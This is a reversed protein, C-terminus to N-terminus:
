TRSTARSERALPKRIYGKEILKSYIRDAAHEPAETDGRVVVDPQTPPEYAVQVGPVSSTEGRQASRYIGKPDRAVCTEVPCDVYVELFRDIALRAADRYARRNATADFIVPLGHRVLIVGVNVLQQYFEAREKEDYHPDPTLVKRLADSELVAVDIGHKALQDRLARSVSSKGSSPLGTIWVAFEPRTESEM